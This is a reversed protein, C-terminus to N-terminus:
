NIFIEKLEIIVAIEVGVFFLLEMFWFHVEETAHILEWQYQEKKLEEIEDPSLKQQDENAIFVDDTHYGRKLLTQQRRISYVFGKIKAYIIKLCPIGILILALTKM